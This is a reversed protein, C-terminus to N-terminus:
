TSTNNNRVAGCLLAAPLLESGFRREMYLAKHRPIDGRQLWNSMTQPHVGISEALEHMYGHPPFLELAAHNLIYRVRDQATMGRTKEHLSMNLELNKILDRKHTSLIFTINSFHLDYAPSQGFVTV